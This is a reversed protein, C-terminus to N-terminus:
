RWLLPRGDRAHTAPPTPRPPVRAALAERLQTKQELPDPCIPDFLVSAISILREAARMTLDFFVSVSRARFELGLTVVPVADWSVDASASWGFTLTGDRFFLETSTQLLDEIASFCGFRIYSVLDLPDIAHLEEIVEALSQAMIAAFAARSESTLPTM